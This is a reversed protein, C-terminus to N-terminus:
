LYSYSCYGHVKFAITTQFCFEAIGKSLVFIFLNIMMFLIRFIRSYAPLNLSPNGGGGGGWDTFPPIGHTNGFHGTFPYKERM